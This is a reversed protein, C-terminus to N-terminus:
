APTRLLWLDPGDIWLLLRQGDLRFLQGSVPELGENRARQLPLRRLETPPPALALAAALGGPPPPLAAGAEASQWLFNWRSAQEPQLPAGSATLAPPPPSTPAGAGQPVRASATTGFKAPVQSRGKPRGKPNAKTTAKVSPKASPKSTAAAISPQAGPRSGGPERRPRLPSNPLPPPPPVPLLDPPPLPVQDSPLPEPPLRSFVLLEPTDDARQPPVAAPRSPRLGAAALLLGHLLLAALLSVWVSM